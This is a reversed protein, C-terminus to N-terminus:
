CVSAVEFASGAGSATFTFTANTATVTGSPGGTITATLPPVYYAPEEVILQIDDAEFSAVGNSEIGVEVTDGTVAVYYDLSYTRQWSSTPMRCTQRSNVTAGTANALPELM